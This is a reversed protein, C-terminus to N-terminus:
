AAMECEYLTAAVQILITFIGRPNPFRYYASTSFIVPLRPRSVFASSLPYHISLFSGTCLDLNVFM